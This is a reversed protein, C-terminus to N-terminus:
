QWMARQMLSYPLLRKVKLIIAEYLAYRNAAIMRIGFRWGSLVVSLAILIRCFPMIFKLIARIGFGIVAKKKELDYLVIDKEAAVFVTKDEPGWGIVGIPQPDFIMGNIDELLNVNLGCTICTEVQTKTDM